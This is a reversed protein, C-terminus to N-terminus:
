KKYSVLVVLILISILVIYIRNGPFSSSSSIAALSSSQTIWGAWYAPHLLPGEENALYQLKAERLAKGPSFARDLSSYFLQMIQSAAFDQAPWLNSLVQHTGAISFGRSINMVGAGTAQSGDGTQCASLVALESQIEMGYLEFLQLKGDEKKGSPYFLINSQLPHENNIIAHSAIHVIRYSSCLDKFNEETAENGKYTQMDFISGIVTLEEDTYKLAPFAPSYNEISRIFPAFAVTEGSSNANKRIDLNLGALYVIEYKRILFPFKSIDLNKEPLEPLLIDFPIIQLGNDPLIVLKEIKKGPSFPILKQYFKFASKKFISNDGADPLKRLLQIFEALEHRDGQNFLYSDFHTFKQGLALIFLEDEDLFYDVLLTKADLQNRLKELDIGEHNTLENLKKSQMLINRRLDFYNRELELKREKINVTPHIRYEQELDNIELYLEREKRVLSDPLHLLSKLNREFLQTQLLINKSEEMARLAHELHQEKNSTQFLVLSARLRLLSIQRIIPASEIISKSSLFQNFIENKILDFQPELDLIQELYKTNEESSYLAYLNQAHLHFAKLVAYKDNAFAFISRNLHTLVSDGLLHFMALHVYKERQKLPGTGALLLNAESHVRDGPPYFDNAIKWVKQYYALASDQNNANQYFRGIELLNLAYKSADGIEYQKVFKKVIEKYRDISASPEGLQIGTKILQSLSSLTLRHDTGYKKKRIHYAKEFSELAAAYEKLGSQALGLEQYGFSASRGEPGSQDIFISLSLEAYKKAVIFDKRRICILSLLHYTDALQDPDIMGAIQIISDLFLYANEYNGVREAYNAITYIGRLYSPDDEDMAKRKLAMSREAYDLALYNAGLDGYYATYNNYIKALFITDGSREALTLAHDIPSKSEKSKGLDRYIIHQSLLLSIFTSTDRCGANQQYTKVLSDIHHIAAEGMDQDLFNYAIQNQLSYLKCPENLTDYGAIM